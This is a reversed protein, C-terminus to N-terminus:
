HSMLVPCAMHSLTHETAGGLIFERLRSHGYCGMVILDSGFAAAQRTLVTGVGAGATLAESALCTVGHRALTTCIDAGPLDGSRMREKEPDIWLVNVDEALKLIPLADFTARVAERQGNWAIVVRKGVFSIDGKNPILLVPRGSELVIRDPEEFMTSNGWDRDQQCTIILDASRGQDIVMGAVTGFQADAVRWEAPKNLDQTAAEFKAKLKAMDNRYAERHEEVTISTGGGEMAPVVVYPPVVTLGILHASMRRALPVAVGLLRDVRKADYLHVLITQYGLTKEM